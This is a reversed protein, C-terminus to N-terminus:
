LAACLFLTVWEKLFFNFIFLTKVSLLYFTDVSKLNQVFHGIHVSGIATVIYSMEPKTVRKVEAACSNVHGLM